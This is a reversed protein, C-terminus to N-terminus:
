PRPCDVAGPQGTCIPTAPYIGEFANTSTRLLEKRGLHTRIRLILKKGWNWEGFGPWGMLESRGDFTFSRRAHYPLAAFAQIIKTMIPKSQRSRNKNIVCYLSKRDVLTM